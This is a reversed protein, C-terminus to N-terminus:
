DNKLEIVQVSHPPLAIETCGQQATWQSVTYTVGTHDIDNYAETSSGNVTHIRYISYPHQIRVSHSCTSDKNVMSIAWGDRDSFGTVAIDVAQISVNEVQKNEISLMASDSTATDLVLDGM